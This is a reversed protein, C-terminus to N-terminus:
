KIEIKATPLAATVLPGSLGIPKASALVVDAVGAAKAKFKVTVAAGKGTAGGPDNRLLGIVVKGPDIAHAFNSDTREQKVFPGETVEVAELKDAPFTIEIPLAHVPNAAEVNLTVSFTEGAKVSQPADWSTRIPVLPAPVNTAVADPGPRGPAATPALAGETKPANTANASTRIPAPRLRTSNETGIWMESQAIDPKANSRVIHPTIALVLETRAYNDLHSSFLRGAVPLDGLGPIKNASARDENSILGGLLQTEGDRLRLTTTANRTGIQYGV